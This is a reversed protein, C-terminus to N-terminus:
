TYEIRVKSGEGSVTPPTVILKVPVRDKLEEVHSIIGVVM